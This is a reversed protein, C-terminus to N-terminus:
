RSERGRHLEAYARCEERIEEMSVETNPKYFPCDGDFDNRSLCVCIGDKYAFCDPHMDCKARVTTQKSKM